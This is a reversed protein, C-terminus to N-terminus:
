TVLEPQSTSLNCLIPTHDRPQSLIETIFAKHLIVESQLITKKLTQSCAAGQQDIIEEVRYGACLPTQPNKNFISNYQHLDSDVM